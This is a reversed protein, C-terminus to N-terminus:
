GETLGRLLDQNTTKGDPSSCSCFGPPSAWLLRSRDSCASPRFPLTSLASERSKRRRAVPDRPVPRPELEFENEAFEYPM